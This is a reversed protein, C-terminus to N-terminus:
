TINSFVANTNLIHMCSNKQLSFVTIRLLMWHNGPWLFFFARWSKRKLIAMEPCIKIRDMERQCLSEEEGGGPYFDLSFTFCVWFFLPKSFVPHSSIPSPPLEICWPLVCQCLIYSGSSSSPDPKSASTGEKCTCLPNRQEESGWWRNANIWVLQRVSLSFFYSFPMGM